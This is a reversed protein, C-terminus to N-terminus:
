NAQQDADASLLIAFKMHSLKSDVERALMYLEQWCTCSKGAHVVRALMYLEQLCTCSKCAHVVRALM